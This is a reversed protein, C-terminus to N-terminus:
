LINTAETLKKANPILFISIDNSIGVQATRTKVDNEISCNTNTHNMWDSHLRTNPVTWTWWCRSNKLMWFTAHAQRAYCRLWSFQFAGRIKRTNGKRLRSEHQECVGLMISTTSSLLLSKINEHKSPIKLNM